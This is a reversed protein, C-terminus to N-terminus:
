EQWYLYRGCSECTMLETAARVEHLAQLRVTMRCGGCVAAATVPVVALGSRGRLRKEYEGLVLPPLERALTNREGRAGALEAEVRSLRERVVAEDRRAQEERRKHVVEADRLDLGLREQLEMLGLIEEEEKAKAQKIDEIEVLVASYEKNTKVEYLRGEAKTRKGATVELDKEKARLDKRTTDARARLTDLTKKAETLGAQIAEIERPLRAVEAELGAIRTDHSQLDILTQLQSDV